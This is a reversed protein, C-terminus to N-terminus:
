KSKKCISSIEVYNVKVKPIAGNAGKLQHPRLAVVGNANTYAIGSRLAMSASFEKSIMFVPKRLQHDRLHSNTTGQLDVEAATFTFHGFKPVMVGRGNMLEKAIYAGLASWISRNEQSSLPNADGRM